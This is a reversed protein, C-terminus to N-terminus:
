GGAYRGSLTKTKIKTKTKTKAKTPNKQTIKPKLFVWDTKKPKKPNQDAARKAM